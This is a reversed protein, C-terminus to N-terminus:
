ATLEALTQDVAEDVHKDLAKEAEAIRRPLEEKEGPDYPRTGTRRFDEERARKGEIWRGSAPSEYGEYDGFVRPPTLIVLEAPRGCYCTVPDKYENFPRRLTSIHGKECEYDYMPM